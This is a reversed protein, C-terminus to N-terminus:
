FRPKVATNRRKKLTSHVYEFEINSCCAMARLRWQKKNHKHAAIETTRACLAMEEPMKLKSVGYLITARTKM